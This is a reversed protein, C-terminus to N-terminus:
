RLSNHIASREYNHFAMMPLVAPTIKQVQIHEGTRSSHVLVFTTAVSDM